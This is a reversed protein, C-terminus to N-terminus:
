TGVLFGNLRISWAPQDRRTAANPMCGGAMRQLPYTICYFIQEMVVSQLGPERPM